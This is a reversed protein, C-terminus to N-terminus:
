RLFLPFVSDNHADSVIRAETLDFNSLEFYAISNSEATYLNTSNMIVNSSGYICVDGSEWFVFATDRLKGSVTM